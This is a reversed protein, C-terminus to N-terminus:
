SADSVYYEVTGTVGPAAVTGSLNINLAENLGCALGKVVRRVIGGGAAFAQAKSIDTTSSQFKVNVSESCILDWSLLFIRKGAGPAAVVATNGSATAAIMASQVGSGYIM